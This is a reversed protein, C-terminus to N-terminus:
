DDGAKPVGAVDPPCCDDPPKPPTPVCHLKPDFGISPEVVVVACVEPVLAGLRKPAVEVPPCEINPCCDLAGPAVVGACFLGTSLKACDVVGTFVGGVLM